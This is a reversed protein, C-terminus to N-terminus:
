RPKAPDMHEEIVAGLERVLDKSIDDACRWLKNKYLIYDGQQGSVLVSSNNLFCLHYKKGRVVADFEM